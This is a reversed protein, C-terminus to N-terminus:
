LTVEYYYQSANPRWQVAHRALHGSSVLAEIHGNLWTSKKKRGVAKAIDARTLLGGAAVARLIEQKIDV